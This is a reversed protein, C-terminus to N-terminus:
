NELSKNHKILENIYQLISEYKKSVIGKKKFNKKDHIDVRFCYINISKVYEMDDLLNVIVESLGGSTMIYASYKDIGAINANTRWEFHINSKVSYIKSLRDALVKNEDSMNSDFWFIGAKKSEKKPKKEGNKPENKPPEDVKSIIKNANKDVLYRYTKNIEPKFLFFDIELINSVMMFVVIFKNLPDGSPSLEGHFEACEELSKDLIVIYGKSDYYIGDVFLEKQDTFYFGEKESYGISYYLTDTELKNMIRLKPFSQIAESGLIKLNESSVKLFKNKEIHFDVTYSHQTSNYVLKSKAEEKHIIVHSETIFIGPTEDIRCLFPRIPHHKQIPIKDIAKKCDHFLYTGHNIIEKCGENPCLVEKKYIHDLYTIIRSIGSQIQASNDNAVSSEFFVNLFVKTLEEQTIAKEINGLKEM